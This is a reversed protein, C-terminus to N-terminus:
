PAVDNRDNRSQTPAAQVDQLRAKQIVLIAADRLTSKNRVGHAALENLCQAVLNQSRYILDLSLSPDTSLAYMAEDYADFLLRNTDTDFGNFRM